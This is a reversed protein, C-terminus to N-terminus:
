AKKGEENHEEMFARIAECQDDIRGSKYLILEGKPAKIIMIPVVKAKGWLHIYHDAIRREVRYTDIEIEQGIVDFDM